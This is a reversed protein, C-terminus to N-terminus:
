VMTAARRGTFSREDDTLEAEGIANRVAEKKRLENIADPIARRQRALVEQVAKRRNEMGVKPIECLVLGAMRIIDGGSQAKATPYIQQQRESLTEALRPRWGERMKRVWEKSPLGNAAVNDAIWRQVYGQRPPPADLNTPNIWKSASIEPYFDERQIEADRDVHMSNRMVAPRAREHLEVAQGGDRSYTRGM